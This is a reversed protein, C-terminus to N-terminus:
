LKEDLISEINDFDWYPIRILRINKDECYKNKIQDKMQQLKLREGKKDKSGFARKYHQEGDFEVCTNLHEIYFDFPLARKYKCDKFKHGRKYLIKNKLLYKKVREEGKSVVHCEPCREGHSFNNLSAYYETGCKLHKILLPSDINIYKDLLKYEGEGLRNIREEAQEQTLRKTKAPKCIPCRLTNLFIRPLINFTKNCILHKMEIKTDVNVINGIVEFENTKEKVKKIYEEQTIKKLGACTPCKSKGTLFNNPTPFWTKNCKTHLMEVKKDSNIYKGIVKYEGNYKEFVEQEFKEQTKAKPM